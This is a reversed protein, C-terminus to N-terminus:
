KAIVRYSGTRWIYPCNEDHVEGEPRRCAACCKVDSSKSEREFKAFCKACNVNEWELAFAMWNGNTREAQGCYSPSIGYEVPGAPFVEIVKGEAWVQQAERRIYIRSNLTFHRTDSM